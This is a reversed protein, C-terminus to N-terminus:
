GGLWLLLADVDETGFQEAILRNRLQVLCFLILRREAPTVTVYLKNRRHFMDEVEVALIACGPSRSM